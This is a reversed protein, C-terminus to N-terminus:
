WTKPCGRSVLAAEVRDFFAQRCNHLIRATVRTDLWGLEPLKAYREVDWDRQRPETWHHKGEFDVGVRYEPWGIDIRAFLRGREDYVPVQTQPRPFRYQVLLLRTFSEYPSEAGGDVLELTQRLQRVGRVGPHRAAVVEVDPVDFLTANLLADLHRVGAELPLRRGLDFATRAPTTVRMSKALCVDDDALQYRRM